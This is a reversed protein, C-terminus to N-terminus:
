WHKSIVEGFESTLNEKHYFLLLLYEKQLSQESDMTTGFLINGKLAKNIAKEQSGFGIIPTIKEIRSDERAQVKYIAFLQKPKFNKIKSLNSKSNMAKSDDYHSVFKLNKLGNKNEDLYSFVKHLTELRIDDDKTPQDKLRFMPSCSNISYNNNYGNLLILYRENSQINIECAGSYAQGILGRVNLTTFKTGKYVKEFEVDVKYTRQETNEDYVKLIKIVGVVDASLYNETLTSPVCSCASVKIFSLLLFLFLSLKKM